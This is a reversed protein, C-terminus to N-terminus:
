ENKLNFLELQDWKNYKRKSSFSKDNEGGTNM